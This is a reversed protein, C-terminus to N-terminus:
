SAMKQESGLDWWYERRQEMGLEMVPERKHELGQAWESELALAKMNAKLHVMEIERQLGKRIEM